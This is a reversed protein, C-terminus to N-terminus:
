EGPGAGRAATGRGPLTLSVLLAIVGVLAAGGGTAPLPEAPDTVPPQSPAPAPMSPQAPEERGDDSERAGEGADGSARLTVECRLARHDLGGEPGELRDTGPAEGLTTCAGTLDPTALAHDITRAMALDRLEINAPVSGTPDLQASEFPLLTFFPPDHEVPGSLLRFSRDEGVHEEWVDVSADRERFPDLNFDGLVLAGHATAGLADFLDAVQEARCGEDTSDPHTVGVTLPVDHLRVGVTFSEFGDDCGDEVPLSRAVPGCYGGACGEISGLSARVALCDWAHRDGCVVDYDDHALLRLVQPPDQSPLSCSNFPNQPTLGDCLDPPLVEIFAVVDPDLLELNAAIREELPVLCLSFAQEACHPSVNGVNAVMARVRHVADEATFTEAGAARPTQVLTTLAASVVVLAAVLGIRMTSRATPV